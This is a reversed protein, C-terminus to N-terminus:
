PNTSIVKFLGRSQHVKEMLEEKNNALVTFHGMKRGPKTIKKGYLHCYSKEM